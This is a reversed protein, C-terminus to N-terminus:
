RGGYISWDMQCGIDRGQPGAGRAAESTIHYDYLRTINSGVTYTNLVSDCTASTFMGESDVGWWQVNTASTVTSTTTFLDDEPDTVLGIILVNDMVVGTAYMWDHGNTSVYNDILTCDYFEPSKCRTTHLFLKGRGKFYFLCNYFKNYDEESGGLTGGVSFVCSKFANGDSVLLLGASLNFKIHEFTNYQCSSAGKFIYSSSGVYDPAIIASDEVGRVLLYNFTFNKGPYSEVYVGNYLNVTDGAVITTADWATQIGDLDTYGNLKSTGDAAGTAYKWIHLQTANVQLAIFFAILFLKTKM